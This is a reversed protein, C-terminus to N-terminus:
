NQLKTEPHQQRTALPAATEATAAPAVVVAIAAPQQEQQLLEPLLVPAAKAILKKIGIRIVLQMAAMGFGLNIATM